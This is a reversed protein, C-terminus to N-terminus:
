RDHRPCGAEIGGTATRRRAFPFRFYDNDMVVGNGLVDAVYGKYSSELHGISAVLTLRDVPVAIAALEFGKTTTSPINEGLLLSAGGVAKVRPTEQLNKYDSCFADVNVRLRRDLWDTKM